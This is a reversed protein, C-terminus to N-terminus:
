GLVTREVAQAFDRLNPPPGDGYNTHSGEASWECFVTRERGDLGEGRELTFYRLALEETAPVEDKLETLLVAATFFAETIGRPEPFEVVACALNGVRIPHITLDDARLPPEGDPRGKSITELLSSLLRGSEPSAMVGIYFLPDDFAVSRLAYHAMVYHQHRPRDRDLDLESLAEPGRKAPKPKLFDFWGM